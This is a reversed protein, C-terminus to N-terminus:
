RRGGPTNAYPKWSATNLPMERSAAQPTQLLMSGMPFCQNLLQQNFIQQNLSVSPSSIPQPLSNQGSSQDPLGKKTRKQPRQQASAKNLAAKKPHPPHTSQPDQFNSKHPLPTKILSPIQYHHMQHSSSQSSNQQMQHHQHAPMSGSQWNTELNSSIFQAPPRQGQSNKIPEKASHNDRIIQNRCSKDTSKGDPVDKLLVRKCHTQRVLSPLSLDMATTSASSSIEETIKKKNNHGLSRDRPEECNARVLEHIKEALLMDGTRPVRMFDFPAKPDSTLLRASSTVLHKAASSTSSNNQVVVSTHNAFSSSQPDSKNSIQKHQPLSHSHQQYPSSSTNHSNHTTVTKPPSNSQSPSPPPRQPQQPQPQSQVNKQSATHNAKSSSKSKKEVNPESIQQRQQQQQQQQQPQQQQQQQPNHQQNHHQNQKRNSSSTTHSTTSSSSSKHSKSSKIDGDKKSSSSSQQAPHPQPQPQPQPQQQHQNSSPSSEPRTSTPNMPPPMVDKFELQGTNIYFGGCETTLSSPILEDYAESNDIFSDTEDYGKGKDIFDIYQPTSKDVGDTTGSLLKENVLRQYSYEPFSDNSVKFLKIELRHTRTDKDKDKKKDKKSGFLDMKSHKTPVISPTIRKSMM